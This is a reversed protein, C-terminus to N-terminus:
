ALFREHRAYGVAHAMADTRDPHVIPRDFLHFEPAVLEVQGFQRNVDGTQPVAPGDDTGPQDYASIRVAALSVDAEMTKLDLARVLGADQEIRPVRPPVVQFVLLPVLRHRHRDEDPM